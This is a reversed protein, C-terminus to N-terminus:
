HVGLLSMVSPWGLAMALGSYALAVLLGLTGFTAAILGLVGTLLMVLGLTPIALFGAIGGIGVSALMAKDGFVEALTTQLWPWVAFGSGPGLVIASGAAAAVALAAKPKWDTEGSLRHGYESLWDLPTLHDRYWNIVRTLIGANSRYGEVRALRRHRIESELQWHLRPFLPPTAQSEELLSAMAEDGRARAERFAEHDHLSLMLRVGAVGGAFRSAIRLLEGVLEVHGRAAAARFGAGHELGLLSVVGENGGERFALRVARRLGRRDGEVCARTYDEM